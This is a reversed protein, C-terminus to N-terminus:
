STATNPDAPYILGVASLERLLDDLDTSIQERSADYESVLQEVMHDFSHGGEILSWIRTGVEDLGFYQESKLDLLVTEGDIEQFVVHEAVRIPAQPAISTM